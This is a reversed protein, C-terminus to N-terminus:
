SSAPVLKSFNARIPEQGRVTTLKLVPYSGSGSSWSDVTNRGTGHDLVCASNGFELDLKEEALKCYPEYVHVDLLFVSFYSLHCGASVCVSDALTLFTIVDRPLGVILDSSRLVLTAGVTKRELDIQHFKLLQPCPPMGVTHESGDRPDAINIVARRTYEAEKLLEVVRRISHKIRGAYRHHIKGHADAWTRMFPAAKFLDEETFSEDLIFRVDAEFSEGSGPWRGFDLEWTGNTYANHKGRAFTIHQDVYSSVLLGTRKCKRLLISRLYENEESFSHVLERVLSTYTASIQRM